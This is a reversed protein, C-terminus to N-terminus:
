PASITAPDIFLRHWWELTLLAWLRSGHDRKGSLHEDILAQLALQRYLQRARAEPSFLVERVLGMDRRLWSGLPVGFGHKPRHIIADPLLGHAVQKLLYKTTRGRLKLDLPVRAAWEALCHDLFPSRAELSHAMTMRDAKILLDDPLYTHMNAALIGRLDGTDDIQEGFHKSAWDCQGSLCTVTDADYVRVWDFYAHALPQGAAAVFRRLRKIPAYYGTGEPLARLLPRVGRWLSRPIVSLRRVLEAAYFREYGAFLEDGGDGNLAVTVHKRTLQSVLYTPIASSDAFPQDYHWVLHPLLTMAEPQVIFETHDTELHRAVTRAYPTEDFSADGAFGISFTKIAGNSQQRMLAVILSSDLGGSLFAGLPVDALLRLRTAEDLLHRAEEIYPREDVPKPSPGVIPPLQWYPFIHLGEADLILANGPPLMYIRQFPTLPAPVYGYALYLALLDRDEFASQRPVAPHRLLAKIESGCVFIHQDCYYYLPKKGMRDRAAFLRRERASWLLFAFQGCLHQPADKGYDEYCHAITEGDGNSHFRHGHAALIDRLSQYNYIEGNFVVAISKDENYLPQNSMQLDIISLRRMALGVPGDIYYGDGDPGRHYLTDNMVKLTTKNALQGDRYFVSCVGCM